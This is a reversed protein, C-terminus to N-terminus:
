RGDGGPAARRRDLPAAPRLLGPHHRAPLIMVCARAMPSARQCTGECVVSARVCRVSSFSGPTQSGRCDCEVSTIRATQHVPMPRAHARRACVNQAGNLPFKIYKWIAVCKHVGDRSVTDIVYEDGALYEM